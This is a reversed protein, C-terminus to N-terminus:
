MVILMIRIVFFLFFHSLGMPNIHYSEPRRLGLLNPHSKTNQHLIQLMKPLLLPQLMPPMLLTMLPLLMKQLLMPMTSLTTPLASADDAAITAADAAENAAKVAANAAAAAIEFNNRSENSPGAPQPPVEKEAEDTEGIRRELRCFDDKLTELTHVSRTLRQAEIQLHFLQKTHALIQRQLTTLTPPKKPKLVLSDTPFIV